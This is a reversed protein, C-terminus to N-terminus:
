ADRVLDLSPLGVENLIFALVEAEYRLHDYRGAPGVPAGAGLEPRFLLWGATAMIPGINPAAGDLSSLWRSRVPSRVRSPGRRLPIAAKASSSSSLAAAAPEPAATM